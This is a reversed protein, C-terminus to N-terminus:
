NLVHEAYHHVVMYVWEQGRILGFYLGAVGAVLCVLVVPHFVRVGAGARRRHITRCILESLSFEFLTVCILGFLWPFFLFYVREAATFQCALRSEVQVIWIVPNAFAIVLREALGAGLVYALPPGVFAFLWISAFLVPGFLHILRSRLPGPDLGAAGHYVAGALVFTVVCLSFPLLFRRAFSQKEM